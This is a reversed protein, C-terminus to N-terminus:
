EEDGHTEIDDLMEKVNNYTRTKGEEFEKRAEEIDRLEIHSLPPSEDMEVDSNIRAMLERERENIVSKMLAPALVENQEDRAMKELPIDFKDNSRALPEIYKIADNLIKKDPQVGRKLQKLLVWIQVFNM